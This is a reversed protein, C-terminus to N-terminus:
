ELSLQYVDGRNIMDIWEYRITRLLFTKLTDSELHHIKEKKVNYMFMNILDERSEDEKQNMRFKEEKLDLDKYNELFTKQM